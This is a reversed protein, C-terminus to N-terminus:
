CTYVQTFSLSQVLRHMITNNFDNIRKCLVYNVQTEKYHSLSFVSLSALSIVLLSGFLKSASFITM